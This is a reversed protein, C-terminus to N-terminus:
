CARRPIRLPRRRGPRARWVAVLQAAVTVAAACAALANGALVAALGVMVSMTVAAVRLFSRVAATM